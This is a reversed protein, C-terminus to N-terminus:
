GCKTLLDRAAAARRSDALGDWLYHRMAKVCGSMAANDSKLVTNREDARRRGAEASAVREDVEALESRREELRAVANAHDGRAILFLTVFIGASVLFLSALVILTTVGDRVGSVPGPPLPPPVFPRYGNLETEYRMTHM